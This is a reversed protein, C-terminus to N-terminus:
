APYLQTEAWRGFTFDNVLRALIQDAYSREGAQLLGVAAFAYLKARDYESMMGSRAKEAEEFLADLSRGAALSIREFAGLVHHTGDDLPCIPAGGRAPSILKFDPLEEAGGLKLRLLFRFCDDLIRIGVPTHTYDFQNLSLNISACVAEPVPPRHSEDKLYDLLAARASEYKPKYEEFDLTAGRGRDRDKIITGMVYDALAGIYEGASSGISGSVDRFRAIDQVRPAEVALLEIFTKDIQRLVTADPIKVSIVYEDDTGDPTVRYHAHCCGLLESKLRATTYIAPESGDRVVSLSRCNRVGIREAAKRSRIRIEHPAALDGVLLLPLPSLHLESRHRDRQEESTFPANCIDCTYVPPEPAFRLEHWQADVYREIDDEQYSAIGM